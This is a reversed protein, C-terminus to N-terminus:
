KAEEKIKRWELIDLTLCDQFNLLEKALQHILEMETGDLNEQRVYSGDNGMTNAMLSNKDDLQKYNWYLPWAKPDTVWIVECSNCLFSDKKAGAMASAQGEAKRYAFNM